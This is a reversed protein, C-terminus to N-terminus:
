CLFYGGKKFIVHITCTCTYYFLTSIREDNNRKQQATRSEVERDVPILESGADNM